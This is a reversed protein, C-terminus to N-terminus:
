FIELLTQINEESYEIESSYIRAVDAFEEITHQKSCLTFITNIMYTSLVAFAIRESFSIDFRGDALHRYIFYIALRESEAEFGPNLKLFGKGSNILVNLKESWERDLQELSLYLRGWKDLSMEPVSIGAIDLLKDFRESLPETRNKLIDFYKNRLSFFYEDEEPCDRSESGSLCVIDTKEKDSLILECAAECCLGIGIETRESFFNRFRPHDACIQCLFDEGMNIIIDCLNDDRLFPCREDRTLTFNRGENNNTIHEKIENSFELDSNCYKEYTEDDVDIEWGICCSHQCKDAICRFKRYYGPAYLKM